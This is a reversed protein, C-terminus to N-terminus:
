RILHHFRLKFFIVRLLIQFCCIQTWLINLFLNILILVSFPYSSVPRPTLRQSYPEFRRPFIGNSKLDLAKVVRGDCSTGNRPPIYSLPLASAKCTLPGPNSGGCRWNQNKKEMKLHMNVCMKMCVFIEISMSFVCRIPGNPRKREGNRKVLVM